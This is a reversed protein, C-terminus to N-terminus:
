AFVVTGPFPGHFLLFFNIADKGLGVLLPGFDFFLKQFRGQRGLFPLVFAIPQAPLAELLQTQGGFPSADFGPDTGPSRQWGLVVMQGLGLASPVRVGRRMMRIRHVMRLGAFDGHRWERVRVLGTHGRRTKTGRVPHGVTWARSSRSTGTFRRTPHRVHRRWSVVGWWRRVPSRVRWGVRMVRWGWRSMVASWRRRAAPANLLAAVRVPGHADGNPATTTMVVGVVLGGLGVRFVVSVFQGVTLALAGVSRSVAVAPSGLFFSALGSNHSKGEMTPQHNASLNPACHMHIKTFGKTIHRFGRTKTSQM